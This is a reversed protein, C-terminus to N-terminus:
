VYHYKFSMQQSIYQLNSENPTRALLKPCEDVELGAIMMMIAPILNMDMNKFHLANHIILVYSSGTYECDYIVAATVIPVKMPAGLKMTFRSVMATKNSVELIATNRGMVPSDTHSDLETASINNDTAAFSGIKHVLYPLFRSSPSMVEM